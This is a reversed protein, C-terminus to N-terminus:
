TVFNSLIEIVDEAVNGPVEYEKATPPGDGLVFGHNLGPLTVDHFNPSGQLRKRWQDADTETVQFDRSGRLMLLPVDLKKATSFVDLQNLHRLYRATFIGAVSANQALTGNKFAAVENRVRAVFDDGLAGRQMEVQRLVTDELPEGGPALLAVGAIGGAQRAIEPAVQGGLSHGVVYLHRPDVMPVDSRLARIWGVADDITEEQVTSTPANPFVANRKDYALSAIGRSALGEAIDRFVSYAGLNEDRTSPGSGPILVVTPFPGKGIPVRLVGPLTADLGDIRTALSLLQARFLTPDSYRPRQWTASTPNATSARPM